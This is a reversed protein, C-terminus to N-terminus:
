QIEHQMQLDRIERPILRKAIAFELPEDFM